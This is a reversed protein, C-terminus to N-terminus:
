GAGPERRALREHEALLFAIYSRILNCFLRADQPSLSGGDRLDTGHRVGGGTPSSLYGHLAEVWHLVRDLTTGVTGRRLEQVIRNFYNGEVTGTATDLGRFATSVTELLWLIEQVAERNRGEALLQDSRSLCEQLLGAAQEAMTLPPEPVPIAATIAERMVLENGRVEYGIQHEALLANIATVDPAYFHEGLRSVRTCAEVMAEIFLPANSAAQEMYSRLDTEAWSASSSRVHTTGAAACFYGKFHELVEQTDGQTAVRGIVELCDALAASPISGNRFAGDPPPHFRWAGNFRLPM